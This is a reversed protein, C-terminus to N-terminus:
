FFALLKPEDQYELERKETVIRTIEETLVEVPLKLITCVSEIPFGSVKIRADSDQSSSFKSAALFITEERYDFEYNKLVVPRVQAM